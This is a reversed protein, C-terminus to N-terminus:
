PGKPKNGAAPARGPNSSGSTASPVQDAGQQKAGPAGGASNAPPAGGTDAPPGQRHVASAGPGDAKPHPPAGAPGAQDVASPAEDAGATPHDTPDPGRTAPPHTAMGGNEGTEAGALDAHPAGEPGAQTDEQRAAPVASKAVKPRRIVEIASARIPGSGPQLGHIRIAVGQILDDRTVRSGDDARLDTTPSLEIPVPSASTAITLDDHRGDSQSIVGEVERAIVVPTPLAEAPAEDSFVPLTSVAQKILEAPNSGSAAGAILLGSGAVTAAVLAGGRVSHRLSRPPVAVPSSRRAAVASRLRAHGSAAPPAPPISAGLDGIRAAIQALAGTRGPSHSLGQLALELHEAEVSVYYPRWM